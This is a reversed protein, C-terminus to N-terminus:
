NKTRQQSKKHVPLLFRFFFYQDYNYALKKKSLDDKVHGAQYLKCGTRELPFQISQGFQVQAPSDSFICNVYM